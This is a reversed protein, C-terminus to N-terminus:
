KEGGGRAGVKMAARMDEEARDRYDKVWKLVVEEEVMKDKMREDKLVMGKVEEDRRMVAEVEM